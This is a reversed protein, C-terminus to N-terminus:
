ASLPSKEISPRASFYPDTAFARFARLASPSSTVKWNYLRSGSTRATTQSDFYVVARIAPFQTRLESATQAFWAAKEGPHDELVGFEGILLPKGSSAGWQYFASFITGFSNWPANPVSPAWNYGDAGIWDVYANGPYFLQAHGTKFDFGSPCWVWLVNTAGVSAFIRHIHRWAAIFSAPSVADSLNSKDDMEAFWRIMVPGRLARVQRAAARIQVDYDGAAIRNTPAGAWSIMPIIGQRLDWGAVQVPMPAGWRVYVQDIALKRGIVQELNRVAAEEGSADFSDAPPQVWAGFLDGASPVLLRSADAVHPPRAAAPRRAVTGAGPGACASVVTALLGLTAALAGLARASRRGPGRSCEYTSGARDPTVRRM